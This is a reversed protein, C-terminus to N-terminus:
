CRSLSRKELSYLSCAMRIAAGYVKVADYQDKPIIECSFHLIWEAPYMKKVSTVETM